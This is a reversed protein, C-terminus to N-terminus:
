KTIYITTYETEKDISGGSNYETEKTLNGAVDYEWEYQVNSNLTEKTRNGVADYEWETWGM